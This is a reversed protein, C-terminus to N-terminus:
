NPIAIESLTSLDAKNFVVIRNSGTMNAYVHDKYVTMSTDTDVATTGQVEIELNENFRAIYLKRQSVVIAYIKGGSLVVPSNWHIDVGKATETMPALTDLSLITLSHPGAHDTERSTVVLVGGAYAIYNVSCINNASSNLVTGSGADIAFIRNNYHGTSQRNSVSMYYFKDAVIPLTPRNELEERATVLEDAVQQPNTMAQEAVRERETQPQVEQAQAEETAPPTAEDDTTTQAEVAAKDQALQQDETAKDQALQDIEQKLQEQAAQEREAETKVQDAEEQKQQAQAQAQAADAQAAQAAEAKQQADPANNARAEDAARQAADAEAQKAQAESQATTADTEKEDLLIQLKEQDDRSQEQARQADVLEQERLQQLGEREELAMGETDRASAIVDQTLQALSVTSRDTLPVIIRSRGAWETYQLSLGANTEDLFDFMQPKYVTRLYDVNGRYAANYFSLFFALTDADATNYAYKGELYGAIIQRVNRIHDVRASPDISIIAASYLGDADENTAVVVSYKNSITYLRNDENNLTALARGINRIQAATNTFAFANGSFNEFVISQNERAKEVEEVAVEIAWLSVVQMMVMLFIGMKRLLM